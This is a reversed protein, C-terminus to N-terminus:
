NPNTAFYAEVEIAGAFEAYEKSQFVPGAAAQFKTTDEWVIIVVQYGEAFHPMGKEDLKFMKFERSFKFGDYKELSKFFTERKTGFADAEKVKRVAFEVVLGEEKITSIDFHKGDITELLGYALPNFSSFYEAAEKTPVLRSAIEGFAQISPYETMGVVVSSLDMKPDLAFFPAWKGDNLANEEKSLLSVFDKRSSWFKDKQGDKAQNIAIEFTTSMEKANGQNINILFLGLILLSSFTFNKFM